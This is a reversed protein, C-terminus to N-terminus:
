FGACVMNQAFLQSAVIGAADRNHKRSLFFTECLHSKMYKPAHSVEGGWLDAKNGASGIHDDPFKLM